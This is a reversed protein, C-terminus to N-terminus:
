VSNIRFYDVVFCHFMVHCPIDTHLSMVNCVSPSLCLCFLIVDPMVSMAVRPIFYRSCEAGCGCVCM